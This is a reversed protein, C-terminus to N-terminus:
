QVIKKKKLPNPMNVTRIVERGFRCPSLLLHDQFFIHIIIFCLKTPPHCLLAIISKLLLCEEVGEWIMSTGNNVKM